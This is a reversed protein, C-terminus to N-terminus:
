IAATRANTGSLSGKEATDITLGDYGILYGHDAALKVLEGHAPNSHHAIHTAYVQTEDDIVGNARAAAVEELFQEHNMHGGSRGAYGFTHDMVLIDFTWGLEALRPWTDQPMSGTDTGYFLRGGRETDEIAFLMAEVGMDHNAVVTQVRYPGVQVEQWPAITHIDLYFEAQVEPDSFSRERKGLGLVEDMRAVSSASCFYQTVALGEVQCMRARGFLTTGALHDSHPHTQLAYPITHLRIGFQMAANAIDPGFDILLDDNIVAASLMRNSPGGEVRAAECNDCACFPDPFGEAAATGLFTLKM